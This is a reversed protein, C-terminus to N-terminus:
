EGTQSVKNTQIHSLIENNTIMSPKFLISIDAGSMGKAAKKLIDMREPKKDGRTIDSLIQLLTNNLLRITRLKKSINSELATAKGFSKGDVFGCYFCEKSISKRIRNALTLFPLERAATPNTIEIAQLADEEDEYKNSSTSAFALARKLADSDSTVVVDKTTIEQLPEEPKEIDEIVAVTEATKSSIEKGSKVSKIDEIDIDNDIKSEKIGTESVSVEIAGINESDTNKLKDFVKEFFSCTKKTWVLGKRTITEVDKETNKEILRHSIATVCNNNDQNNKPADHTVPTTDNIDKGNLSRSTYGTNYLGRKMEGWIHENFAPTNKQTYLDNLITNNTITKTLDWVLLNGNQIVKKEISDKDIIPLKEAKRFLLEEKTYEMMAKEIFAADTAIFVTGLSRALILEAPKDEKMQAVQFPNRGSIALVSYSGSLRRAVEYLLDVTFPESGNNSFRHLLRAISESDVEGSRECELRKFIEKHNNITGNHVMIIEGVQIPHNNINDYSNGVTSKRCHGLFVKMQEKYENWIKIIGGYETESEGFRTIFDLSPVGMKLGRYNGDEWLLCVGTADKGREMTYQLIYTSIRMVAKQRKEEKDPDLKNGFILAGVIGCM